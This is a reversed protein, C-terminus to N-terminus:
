DLGNVLSMGEKESDIKLKFVEIKRLLLEAQGNLEQSSAASQQATASNNQVVQSIQELGRDIQLISSAQEASAASIKEGLEVTKDVYNVIDSLVNATKNAIKTGESVKKISGNILEATEKAANASSAALNRVEEVIVAFGKGHVGARAAEVAANLSVINTRAAIDDIVKIIKSINVSSENIEVMSKLMEEMQESCQAVAEKADVAIKKSENLDEANQKTQGSIQSISATLEEISSAQETAGVAIVQSGESLQRTASAMQKSAHNIESLMNSLSVVIKNISDKLEVFDGLYETQIGVDFNGNCIENLVFSIESIYRKLNAITENLSNQIISHDGRFEGTLNIGLNGKYVERLVKVAENVPLIVADLTSNFGEIIMRYAGHHKEADARVILNGEVAAEILTKTDNILEKLTDIMYNLNDKILAYDGKFDGEVHMDLNGKSVYDLVKAAENVPVVIFDLVLNFGEIIKGYAGQHKKSDARVSLQGETAANILVNTDNELSKISALIYEYANVMQGIENKSQFDFAPVDTDGDALKKLAITLRKVPKSISRSISMGILISLFVVLGILIFTNTQVTSAMQSNFTDLTVAKRSVTFSLDTIGDAVAKEASFLDGSHTFDNIVSQSDGSKIKQVSAAMQSNYTAFAKQLADLQTKTDPNTVLMNLKGFDLDLNAKSQTIKSTYLTSMTSDDTYLLNRVAICEQQFTNSIQNISSAPLLMEQYMQSSLTSVQNLQISEYLGMGAGVIAIIFFGTLIKSAIKMNRIFILIKSFINKKKKSNKQKLNAQNTQNKNKNKKKLRFEM